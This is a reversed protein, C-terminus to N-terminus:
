YKRFVGPPVGGGGGAMEVMVKLGPEMESSSWERRKGTGIRIGGLM